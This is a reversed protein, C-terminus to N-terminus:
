WASPRWGGADGCPARRPDAGRAGARFREREVDYMEWFVGVREGPALVASGRAIRAAELMEVPRADPHALLLLDSVRADAEWAVAQRRRAVARTSDERLELSVVTNTAPCSWTCRAAPRRPSGPPNRAGGARTTWPWWRPACARTPPSATKRSRTAPWWCRAARAASLRRAPAAARMIHRAYEPAYRTVTPEQESLPWEDGRLRRPTAAGNAAAPHVGLHAARQLRRGVGAAALRLVDARLAGVRHVLRLAAPDGDPRRGLAPPGGPARAAPHPGDDVARLAGDAPREGARVLAPGGAVVDAAGAARAGGGAHHALRAQRGAGAAGGRGDVARAGGGAHGRARCRVGAGRGRFRQAEHLALGELAACWWREARCARAAAVAGDEDGAELLYRVRQGAIWETGRCRPRPRPSRRGAPRAPARRHRAARAAARRRGRRRQVLLLLPRHDRRVPRSSRAPTPARCGSSGFASSRRRRRARGRWCRRPIRRGRIRPDATAVPDTQARAAAHPRHAISGAVVTFRVFAPVM